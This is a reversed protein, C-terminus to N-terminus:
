FLLDMEYNLAAKPRRKKIPVEWRCGSLLPTEVGVKQFYLILAM